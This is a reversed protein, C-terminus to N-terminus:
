NLNITAGQINVNGTSTINTDGKTTITTDKEVDVMLHGISNIHIDGNKHLEIFSGNNHFIKISDDDHLQLYYHGKVFPFIYLLLKLFVSQFNHFSVQQYEEKPLM